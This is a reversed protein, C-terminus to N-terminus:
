RTLDGILAEAVDAGGMKVLLATNMIGYLVQSIPHRLVSVIKDTKQDDCLVNLLRAGDSYQFRRSHPGWSLGTKLNSTGPNLNSIHHIVNLLCILKFLHNTESLKTLLLSTAAGMCPGIFVRTFIHLKSKSSGTDAFGKSPNLGRITIFGIKALIPQNDYGGLTINLPNGYLIKAMFAHGVEHALTSLAIAGLGLGVGTTITFAKTALFCSLSKTASQELQMPRSDTFASCFLLSLGIIFNYKFGFKLKM